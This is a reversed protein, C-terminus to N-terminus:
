ASNVPNCILVLNGSVTARDLLEHAHRAETLPLSRAVIPKIQGKALLNLLAALDKRYWDPHNTKYDAISYFSVKRSDPILNLLKVQLLTAGIAFMKHKDGKFASLFGYNVLRGSRRLLRYSRLLNRGGISDFVVDISHSLEQLRDGVDEAQYDIPIGGLQSVLEHKSRAETGYMELEVLKGLELLATGVGGGAGHILIKQGPKVQAVRYLMQYATLYHLVVSVAEIADVRAPVPVLDRAPVCLFESYGGVITLAVVREGPMFESVGEGLKDVIGVIDYGPSYPLKPVGPYVGERMMVDTFAVGVALIKVRVEGAKPEPLEDEIVKLVESGGPRTTIVRKYKM